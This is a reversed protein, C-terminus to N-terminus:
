NASKNVNGCIVSSLSTVIAKNKYEEGLVRKKYVIM